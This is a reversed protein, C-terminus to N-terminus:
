KKEWNQHTIYWKESHAGLAGIQRPHALPLVSINRNNVVTATINGYGYINVYEQLTTYNIDAVKKLFQQIPIDGLLILLEAHSEELELLIEESRKQDCFVTPRPPITVPNLGYSKILPEYKEKHKDAKRGTKQMGASSEACGGPGTPPIMPPQM